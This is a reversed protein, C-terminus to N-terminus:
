MNVCVCVYVYIDVLSSEEIRLYYSAINLLVWAYVLAQAWRVGTRSERYMYVCTYISCIYKIIYIYIYYPYSGPFDCWSSSSFARWSAIFAVWRIGLMHVICAVEKGLNCFKKYKYAHMNYIYIILTHIYVWMYRFLYIHAHTLTYM